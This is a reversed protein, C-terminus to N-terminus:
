NEDELNLSFDVDDYDPLTPSPTKPVRKLPDYIFKKCSDDPTTFGKKECLVIKKDETLICRACYACKPEINKGFLKKSM